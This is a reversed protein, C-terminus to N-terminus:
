KRFWSAMRAPPGGRIPRCSRRARPDNLIGFTRTNPGFLESVNPARIDRSKTGRIRFSEILQWTLVSSGPRRASVPHAQPRITATTLSHAPGRRQFGRSRALPVDKLLPVVSEVYGEGVNVKGNINAANNVFFGLNQSIPDATGDVKDTRYEVGGALSVPGAWTSFPEGQV